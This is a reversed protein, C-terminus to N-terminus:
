KIIDVETEQPIYNNEKAFEVLGPLYKIINIEIFSYAVSEDLKEKKVLLEGQNLTMFIVGLVLIILGVKLVGFVSGLIRNVLGLAVYSVLKTIAKGILTVAVIIGIFVLIFAFLQLYKPDWDFWKKLHIQLEESFHYAGIIGLIVSLLSALENILGKVAGRILGISLIVLIAIDIGNM